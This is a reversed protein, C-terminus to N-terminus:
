GRQAERIRGTRASPGSARLFESLMDVEGRDAHADVGKWRAGRGSPRARLLKPRLARDSSSGLIRRARETASVRHLCAPDACAAPAVRHHEDDFHPLRRTSCGTRGSGTPCCIRCSHEAPEGHGDPEPEGDSNALRASATASPRPLACASVSRFSWTRSWPRGGGSRSTPRRRETTSPPPPRRAGIAAPRSRRRRLGSMVMGPSPSTTSPMAETSSDAIVPSDAGTMRSDPPSREATVPPVVPARRGSRRSADRVFGPSLKMSRIIARTSPALRCFVGLSIASLM